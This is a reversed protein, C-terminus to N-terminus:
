PNMRARLHEVLPSEAPVYRLPVMGGDKLQLNVGISGLSRGFQGPKVLVDNLDAILLDFRRQGMFTGQQIILYRETLIFATNRYSMYRPVIFIAALVSPLVGFTIFDFAVAAGLLALWPAAGWRWAWNSQRVVIADDPIDAPRTGKQGEAEM